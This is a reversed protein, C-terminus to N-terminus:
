EDRKAARAKKGDELIEFVDTALGGVETAIDAVAKTIITAIRGVRTAASEVAVQVVDKSVELKSVM